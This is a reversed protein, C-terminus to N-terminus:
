LLQNELQLRKSIKKSQYILLLLPNHLIPPYPKFSLIKEFFSSCYSDIAGMQRKYASIFEDACFLQLFPLLIAILKKQM